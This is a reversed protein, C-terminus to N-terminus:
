LHEGFNMRAYLIRVVEIEEIGPRYFIVHSAVAYRYYGPRAEFPRGARPDTAIVTVAARITTIYAEAQAAGWRRKTFRWINLLDDQAKRRFHVRIM